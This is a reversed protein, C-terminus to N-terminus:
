LDRAVRSKLVRKTIVSMDIGVECPRASQLLKFLKLNSISEPLMIAMDFKDFDTRFTRSNFYAFLCVRNAM